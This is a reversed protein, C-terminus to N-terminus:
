RRKIIEDKILALYNTHKMFMERIIEKQPEVGLPDLFMAMRNVAVDEEDRCEILKELKMTGIEDPIKPFNAAWGDWEPFRNSYTTVDIDVGTISCTDTMTAFDIQCRKIESFNLSCGLIFAHRLSCEELHLNQVYCREIVSRALSCKFLDTSHIVQCDLIHALELDVENFRVYEFICNQFVAGFMKTKNAGQDYFSCEDFIAHSLDLEGLDKGSFKVKHFHARKRGTMGDLWDGHVNVMERTKDEMKKDM